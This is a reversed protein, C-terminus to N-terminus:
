TATRKRSSPPKRTKPKSGLVTAPHRPGPQYVGLVLIRNIHDGDDSIPLFLDEVDIFRGDPSTYPDPDYHAQRTAVVRDYNRLTNEASQGFYTSIVSKGTPDNGRVEVEQTGVLRYVYRREDAVPEVLSILPLLAPPLEVPDIDSRRPLRGDRCKSRWFRYLSQVADSARSLWDPDDQPM